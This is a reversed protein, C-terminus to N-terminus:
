ISRDLIYKISGQIGMICIEVTCLRPSEFRDDFNRFLKSVIYLCVVSASNVPQM